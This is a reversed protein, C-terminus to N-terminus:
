AKTKKTTESGWTEGGSGQICREEGGYTGYAGGMASNMTKLVRKEFMRMRHEDGNHCDLKWLWM